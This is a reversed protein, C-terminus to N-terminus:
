TFSVNGACAPIFRADSEILQTEACTERARPSSGVVIGNNSNTDNRKGRVRPHVSYGLYSNRETDVNGACAPIFRAVAQAGMQRASTERARPSSGSVAAYCFKVVCRKGRVRPHVPVAFLTSCTRAVNGACAPIFRKTRWERVRQYYTERARPSSGVAM